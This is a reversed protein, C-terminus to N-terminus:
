MSMTKLLGAALEMGKEAKSDSSVKLSKMRKDFTRQEGSIHLKLSVNQGRLTENLEAEAKSINAKSNTCWAYIGTPHIAIVDMPLVSDKSNLVLDYLMTCRDEYGRYQGYVEESVPHFRGIAVLTSALNATPLATIFAMITIFMQLKETFLQRIYLQAAIFIVLLGIFVLYRRKLRRRYGYIGKELRFM